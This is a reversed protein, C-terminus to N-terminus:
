LLVNSRVMGSGSFIFPSGSEAVRLSPSSVRAQFFLSEGFCSGFFILILDSYILGEILICMRM